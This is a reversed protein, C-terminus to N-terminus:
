YGFMKKVDSCSAEVKCRLSPQLSTHDNKKFNGLQSIYKKMRNHTKEFSSWQFQLYIRELCREPDDELETFSVECLSGPVLHDKDRLYAEYLLKHQEIIYDTLELNSPTSLFCYTFYSQILHASSQFVTIPDRHIFIYRARPFLERFIKLRGMHVPSKIVLPKGGCSYSVKKLFWLFNTVWTDLDSKSCCDFTTYKLFFHFKSPFSLAAYPSVGGTLVNVAIEDESPTSFSLPLDDM